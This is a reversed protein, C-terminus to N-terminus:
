LNGGEYFTEEVLELLEGTAQGIDGAGLIASIVAIGDIDLGKMELVQDRGIGGIAVIPLDLERSIAELGALGIYEADDKSGTPFVAGVGIYDTGAEKAILAEELNGCSLGIIKDPGLIERAREYAMDEQGIHVGDADVERAIEVNDNIVFPIGYELTLKRLARALDLFEDYALDKERLQVFSVGRDLAERITQIFDRQGLWRRDTVLYLKLDERTFNM